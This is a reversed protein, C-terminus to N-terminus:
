WKLFANRHEDSHFKPQFKVKVIDRFGEELRPETWGTEYLAYAHAPVRKRSGMNERVANLHQALERSAEFVFARAPVNRSKAASLFPARSDRRPNTNDIAVSKGECLAERALAMCREKSGLTDMNVRVCGRSELHRQTFTSKGAGPFGILIIMQQEGADLASLADPPVLEEQLAEALGKHPDFGGLPMDRVSADGDGDFYEEPTYFRIGVNVAFKRDSDAFDGRRKVPSPKRGAADGVYFSRRLDVGAGPLVREVFLDWMGTAPKRSQGYTCSVFVVCQVDIRKIIGQMKTRIMGEPSSGADVGAQNTFLAVVAGCDSEERVKQSVRANLLKWDNGHKAFSKGSQTSVLTGDVDYGAVRVPAGEAPLKFKATKGWLVDGERRWAVELDNNAGKESVFMEMTAQFKRKSM